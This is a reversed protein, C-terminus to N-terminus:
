PRMKQVQEWPLVGIRLARADYLASVKKVRDPERAALDNTETRDKEIDYLEWGSSHRSVVKWRGQRVARNREHERAGRHGM